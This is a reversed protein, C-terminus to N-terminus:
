RVRESNSGINLVSRQHTRIWTQQTREPARKDSTSAWELDKLNIIQVESERFKPIEQENTGALSQNEWCIEREWSTRTLIIITPLGIAGLDEWERWYVTAFGNRAFKNERTFRTSVTEDRSVHKWYDRKVREVSRKPWKDRWFLKVERRAM